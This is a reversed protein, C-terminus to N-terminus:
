QQLVGCGGDNVDFAPAYVVTLMTESIFLTSFKMCNLENCGLALSSKVHIFITLNIYLNCRNLYEFPMENSLARFGLLREAQIEMNITHLPLMAHAFM